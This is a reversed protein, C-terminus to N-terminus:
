RVLARYAWPPPGDYSKTGPAFRVRRKGGYVQVLTRALLYALFMVIVLAVVVLLLLM